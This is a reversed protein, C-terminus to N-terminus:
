KRKYSNNGSRRTNETEDCAWGAFVGLENM